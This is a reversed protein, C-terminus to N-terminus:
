MVRTRFSLVDYVTEVHFEKVNRQCTCMKMFIKCYVRTDKLVTIREKSQKIMNIDVISKRRFISYFRWPGRKCVHILKLGLM